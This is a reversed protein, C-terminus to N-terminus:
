ARGLTRVVTGWGVSEASAVRLGANEVLAELETPTRHGGGVLALNLLDAEGGHESPGDSEVINFTPQILLIRGSATLSEAARRLLLVADADPHHALEHAIIITDAPTTKEFVSKETVLIRKRATADPVTQELDKRLWNAQTPLAPILIHVDPNAAVLAAALAGAGDSHIVM